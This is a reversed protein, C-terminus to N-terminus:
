KCDWGSAMTGRVQLMAHWIDHYGTVGHNIAVQGSDACVYGDPCAYGKGCVLDESLFTGADECTYRFADAWYTYRSKRPAFAVTDSAPSKPTYNDQRRDTLRPAYVLKRERSRLIRLNDDDQGINPGSRVSTESAGM